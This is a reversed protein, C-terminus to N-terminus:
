NCDPLGFRDLLLNFTLVIMLLDVDLHPNLTFGPQSYRSKLREVVDANFYGQREVRDRSLLDRVWEIGQQLLYPSGPARFGFKEREVIQRPVLDLAVQKLIYKEDFGKLKLQPPIQRAFDVLEVDLFPYRGEISHALLMKDGHDSLLHDALRLKFDLYSRQHIYDRNRLRERNVLDFNYCDFEGLSEAVAPSYFALKTERFAHYDMEYFIDADGWLQERLEAELLDDLGDREGNRLGLRDFRYGMYGAFLEDAGQGALIVPVGARRAAESLALACTNFTEKVPCECHYVMEPLREAIASWDFFIEHHQNSLRETMIKQYRVESIEGDAFAVSFSHRPVGPSVREILAAVLSSDMGGSLYCGAPVDAQLRYEVSRSLIEALRDKYYSEPRGDAPEGIEPYVLDWYERVEVTGRAARLYHGPPLSQIGKFMTRPSVVGPFSLVQDLGTLDVQRPVGPHELLAKIESGFLLIGDVVTYYLPNIGFPDRALLLERQRSDYVAFAFQGNLRDLLGPGSEEYLHVLVEVDSRSVFRHGKSVLESRLERYNYIEGNCVVVVSRDENYLPQDGTELDIISLRRFGLAAANGFFYGDSDPGRHVLRGTMRALAERDVDREGRLDLYGVFGCM